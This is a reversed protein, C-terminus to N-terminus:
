DHAHCNNKSRITEFRKTMERAINPELCFLNDTRAIDV